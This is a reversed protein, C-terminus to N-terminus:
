ADSATTSLLFAYMAGSGSHGTRKVTYAVVYKGHRALRFRGYIPNTTTNEPTITNLGSTLLAWNWTASSWTGSGKTILYVATGSQYWLFGGLEACYEFGAGGGTSPKGSVTLSIVDGGLNAANLALMAGTDRRIVVVIDNVPDYAGVSDTVGLGAGNAQDYYQFTDTSPDYSVTKSSGGGDGHYVFRDRTSDYTSWGAGGIGFAATARPTWVNTDLDFEGVKALMAPINSTQAIFTYFSNRGPHYEALDYTHMPAPAGNVQAGHAPWWGGPLPWAISTYPESLRSWTRTGVDFGYVETGQYDTHGGGWVIFKGYVGARAAFAGGNWADMVSAPSGRSAADAPAVSSATNTASLGHSPSAGSIAAWTNVAWGSAIASAIWAPEATQPGCATYRSSGSTAGFIEPPCPAAAVCRVIPLTGLLSTSAMLFHRRKM